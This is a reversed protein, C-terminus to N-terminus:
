KCTENASAIRENYIGAERQADYFADTENTESHPVAPHYTLVENPGIIRARFRDAIYDMFEGDTRIEYGNYLVGKVM